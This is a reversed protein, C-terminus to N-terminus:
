DLPAALGCDQGELVRAEEVGFILGREGAHFGTDIKRQEIRLDLNGHQAAAQHSAESAQSTSAGV